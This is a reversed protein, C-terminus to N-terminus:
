RQGRIQRQEIRNLQERMERMQERLDQLQAAVYPSQTELKSLRERDPAAGNAEIDSLRKEHGSWAVSGLGFVATLLVGIVATKWGNGNNQAM